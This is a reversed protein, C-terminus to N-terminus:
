KNELRPRPSGLLGEINATYMGKSDARGAANLGLQIFSYQKLWAEAPKFQLKVKMQSAPLRSALTVEGEGSAELDTGQISFKDLKAKGQDAEIKIELAGLQAKPLDFNNVTGGNLVLEKGTLKVTGSGKSADASTTLDVALELKGELELGIAPKLGARALQLGHGNVVIHRGAEGSRALSGDFEGGLAVASFSIGPPLLSPRVTLSEVLLSPAPADPPNEPKPGTQISVANATAGFGFSPGLTGIDLNTGQKRAEEEIRTQILEWPLTLHVFLVFCGFFFAPYGLRSRWRSAPRNEM